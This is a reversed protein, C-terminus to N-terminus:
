LLITAWTLGALILSVFMAASGIHKAKAILVHM